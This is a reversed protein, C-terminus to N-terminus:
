YIKFNLKIYIYIDWILKFYNNTKKTQKKIEFLVDMKNAFITQFNNIFQIFSRLM